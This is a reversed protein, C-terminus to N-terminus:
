LSTSYALRSEYIRDGFVFSEDKPNLLIKVDSDLDAQIFLEILWDVLKRNLGCLFSLLSTSDMLPGIEIYLQPNHDMMGSGLTSDFGMTIEGLAALRGTYHKGAATQGQKIRVKEQLIIEFCSETLNLNGAIFSVFPMIFFLAAKQYMSLQLADLSYFNIFEHITEPASYFDQEFREKQILHKYFEQELPFFFQRANKEERRHMRFEEITEQHDKFFKGTNAHFFGEPLADYFGERHLYVEWGTVNSTEGRTVIKEVDKSIFRRFNGLLHIAVKAEDTKKCAMLHTVIVEALYDINEQNNTLV